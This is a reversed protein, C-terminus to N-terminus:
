LSSLIAERRDRYEEETILRRKWLLDLEELREAVSRQKSDAPPIPPEVPPPEVARLTAASPAPEPPKEASLPPPSTQFAGQEHLDQYVHDAIRSLARHRAGQMFPSIPLLLLSVVTVFENNAAARYRRGSTREVLEYELSFRTDVYYPIVFLTLGSIIQLAISSDGDQMGMLVLSYDASGPSQGPKAYSYSRIVEKDRWRDLIADNIENGMRNSTVLKGGDLHFSFAPSVSYEVSPRFGPESTTIEPLEKGGTTICGVSGLSLLLISATIITRIV